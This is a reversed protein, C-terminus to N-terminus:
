ERESTKSKAEQVKESIPKTMFIASTFAGEIIKHGLVLNATEDVVSVASREACGLV